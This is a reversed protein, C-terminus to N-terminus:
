DLLFTKWEEEISEGKDEIEAIIEDPDGPVDKWDALRALKAKM